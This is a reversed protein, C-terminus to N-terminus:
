HRTEQAASVGEVIEGPVGVVGRFFDLKRFVPTVGEQVFRIVVEPRQDGVAGEGIAHVIPLDHRVWASLMLQLYAHRRLLLEIHVAGETVILESERVIPESLESV